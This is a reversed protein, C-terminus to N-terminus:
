IKSYDFKRNLRLDNGDWGGRSLQTSSKDNQTPQSQRKLAKKQERAQIKQQLIAYSRLLAEAEANRGQTKYLEALRHLSFALHKGEEGPKQAESLALRFATEAHVFDGRKYAAEGASNQKSWQTEEAYVSASTCCFLVALIFLKALPKM